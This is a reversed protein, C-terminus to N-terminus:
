RAGEIIGQVEEVTPIPEYPRGSELFETMEVHETIERLLFAAVTIGEQKAQQYLDIPIDICQDIYQCRSLGEANANADLREAVEPPLDITYSGVKELYEFTSGDALQVKTGKMPKISSDIKEMTM